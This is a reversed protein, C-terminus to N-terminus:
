WGARHRGRCARRTSAWGPCCRRACRTRSRSRRDRAARRSRRETMHALAADHTSTRLARRLAGRTADDVARQGRELGGNVLQSRLEADDLVRRLAERLSLPDDPRVLLADTGADRSTATATSTARSSPRAARWRKSSCWASRSAARRRHASCRPARSLTREARHGVGCRAVRRQRRQPRAAGRDASGLEGGVVGRRPRHRGVRRAAGVTGQAARSSQLLVGRTTRRSAARRRRLARGRRREVVRHVRRGTVGRRTARAAESVAVRLGVREMNRQVTPMAWERGVHGSIHHTSVMPGHYGILLSLTPGPVMPEHLHVVDPEFMALADITRRAVQTGTAIPAYSGNNEWLVSEGVTIVGPQPPPGDCPGVVRAAIDLRRLERTLGLAQGQVGGPRTLSYPCVMM